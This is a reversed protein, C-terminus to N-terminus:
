CDFLYKWLINDIKKRKYYYNSTSCHLSSNLENKLYYEIYYIGEIQKIIEILNQFMKVYNHMEKIKAKNQNKFYEQNKLKFLYYHYQKIAAIVQEHQKDSKKM